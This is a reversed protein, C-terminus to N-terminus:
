CSEEAFLIDTMKKDFEKRIKIIKNSPYNLYIALFTKEWLDFNFFM